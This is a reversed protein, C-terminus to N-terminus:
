TVCSLFTLLYFNSWLLLIVFNARFPLKDGTPFCSNTAAPQWRFLYVLTYNRPSFSLQIMTSFTDGNLPQDLEQDIFRLWCGSRYETLVRDASSWCHTSLWGLTSWSMDNSWFTTSEWGVTWQSRSPTNSLHWVLHWYTDLLYRDVINDSLVWGCDKACM